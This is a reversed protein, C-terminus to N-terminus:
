KTAATAKMHYDNAMCQVVAITSAQIATKLVLVTVSNFDPWCGWLVQSEFEQESVNFTLWYLLRNLTKDAKM